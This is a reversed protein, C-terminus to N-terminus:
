PWRKQRAHRATEFLTFLQEGRGHSLNDILEDLGQRYRKLSNLIPEQNHLSIDCWMNPNGAGIRTFDRLGTGALAWLQEALPHQDILATALFALLHPAHSVEAFITDHWEASGQVVRSGLAEWFAILRQLPLPPTSELPTIITMKDEFLSAHGAEPGSRELGAIPHAPIVTAVTRQQEAYGQLIPRLQEIFHVKTSGVDTLIAHSPLYALASEALTPLTSVPTCLILLDTSALTEANWSGYSNIWGRQQATELHKIELDIGLCEEALGRQQIAAAISAGLLGIGAIVVRKFPTFATPISSLPFADPSMSIFKHFRQALHRKLRM